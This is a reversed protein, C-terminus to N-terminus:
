RAYVKELFQEQSQPYESYGLPAGDWNFIIKYPPLVEVRQGQVAKGSVHKM